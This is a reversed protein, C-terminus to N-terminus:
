AALGIPRHEPISGTLIQSLDKASQQITAFQSIWSDANHALNLRTQNSQLLDICQEIWDQEGQGLLLHEQHRPGLKLQDFVSRSAITPKRMAMAQLTSLEARQPHVDPCVVISANCLKAYPNGSGPRTSELQADPVARKVTPWIRKAFWAEIDPNTHHMWEGHVVIRNTCGERPAFPHPNIKAFFEVDILIPLNVTQCLPGPFIYADTAHAVTFRDVEAAWLQDHVGDRHPYSPRNLDCVRRIASISRVHPWLRPDTCLIVDFRSDTWTQQILRAFAPNKLGLSAKPKNTLKAWWKKYYPTRSSDIVFQQSLDNVIHWHVLNVPGDLICVLDVAHTQTAIRLLQWARARDIGGIADPICHSAILLRPKERIFRHDM